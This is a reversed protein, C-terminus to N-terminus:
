HYLKDALAKLEEEENVSKRGPNQFIAGGAPIGDKYVDLRVSAMYLVLDWNWYAVYKSTIPCVGLGSSAPVVDAKYGKAELVKRYTALFEAKVRPNEIICVRTAGQMAVPSVRVAPASACGYLVLVVLAAGATLKM